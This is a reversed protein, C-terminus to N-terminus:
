PLSELRNAFLAALLTPQAAHLFDIRVGPLPVDAFELPFPRYGLHREILNALKGTYPKEEEDPTFSLLPRASSGVGGVPEKTVYVLYVPALVSIAGVIRTRVQSGQLAPKEQVLISYLCAVRRPQIFRGARYTPFAAQIAQILADCEKWDLARNWAAEWQQSEPYYSHAIRVLDEKTVPSM